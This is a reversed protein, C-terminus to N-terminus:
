MLRRKRLELLCAARESHLDRGTESRTHIAEKRNKLEETLDRYKKLLAADDLVTITFIPIVEIDGLQAEMDSFDFDDSPDPAMTM